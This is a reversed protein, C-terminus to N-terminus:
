VDHLERVRPEDARQRELVRREDHIGREPLGHLDPLRPQRLRQVRPDHVRLEQVHTFLTVM